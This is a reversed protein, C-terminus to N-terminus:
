DHTAEKERELIQMMGDEIQRRARQLSLMTAKCEKRLM